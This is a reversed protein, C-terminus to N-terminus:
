SQYLFRTIRTYIIGAQLSIMSRASNGCRDSAASSLGCSASRMAASPANRRARRSLM